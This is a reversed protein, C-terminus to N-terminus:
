RPVAARSFAQAGGVVPLTLTTADLDITLETGPKPWLTFERDSSFIMLGIQKGPPIIQDDPQLPFTLEYFQGPILPEGKTLSQYSPQARTLSRYNQPDAWGRTILNDTVRGGRGRGRGQPQTPPQTQAQALAQPQTQPQTQAPTPTQPLPVLWVSINAAPKSSALKVTITATGSLHVPQSLPPTAFLLRHKSEAQALEAGTYSVDDIFTQRGQTAVATTGLNGAKLGDGSLHLTVPSAEPHPYDNYATPRANPDNERVIWARPGKEIGNDIGHLYKTFWKNQLEMPPAGGHGGQHMYIQAPVKNKIAQYIRVSHEPVVNWDNFAHAMLVAAKMPGVRHLLDRSAWFENYDGTARDQGKAMEGDRMNNIAFERKLPNDMHGSNIYDFLFDIDEGLWGGPSRVLGNSRYYHYYSTNPAIPIIVELGEVGTSAAAVPTTGNYSTGTMGVKGTTWTALVPENGDPTTFGKARGNLWDIVAKPALCEPDGGVTPVGQSLGTGPASSHVVIFGRPLWTNVQANSIVPRNNRPRIAPGHPRQAPAVGLEQEVNWLFQRGGATGAFYPSSEYIVPLKLGESETQPPRTVDVHMRDKKGDNDSDFETEVWLDHKIWSDPNNFAPVIQAQGDVFVPLTPTAQRTAAPQTQAFLPLASAALFTALVMTIKPHM